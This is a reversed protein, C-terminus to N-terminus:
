AQFKHKSEIHKTHFHQVPNKTINIASKNDCKIPVETLNIGIDHLQQM